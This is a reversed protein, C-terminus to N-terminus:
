ESSDTVGRGLKSVPLFMGSPTEFLLHCPGLLSPQGEEPVYVFGLTLLLKSLPSTVTTKPLPNPLAYDLAVEKCEPESVPRSWAQGWICYDLRAHATMM